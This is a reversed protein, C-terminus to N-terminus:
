SEPPVVMRYTDLYQVMDIKNSSNRTNPILQEEGWDVGVEWDPSVELSVETVRLSAREL